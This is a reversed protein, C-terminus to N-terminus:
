REQFILTREIGCSSQNPSYVFAFAKLFAPRGKFVRDDEFHRHNQIETHETDRRPFTGWPTPTCCQSELLWQLGKLGFKANPM